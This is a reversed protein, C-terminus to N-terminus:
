TSMANFFAQDPLFTEWDLDMVYGDMGQGMDMGPPALNATPSSAVPMKDARAKLVGYCHELSDRATRAVHLEVSSDTEIAEVQGLIMNLFMHSKVNTEGQHIREEALVMMDRISQKLLQRYQSTRHLTGDLRQAQVHILLELGVAVMIVRLGERFLGGGSAMLRSFAADPEPSMIALAADVSLRISVYYVPNTRAQNSFFFHLPIMFRRVLYDLLNRHFPTSGQTDKMLCNNMHLAETLESSLALIDQYSTEADFKNLLNLIRLRVPISGLLALQISTTTFHDPPHSPAVTTSEDIEVDDVNSPLQTDFEDFSIRPPMRADLSAQVVLELITGWLRRRVETQLVSMPKGPLNQPDRHLGIQMARHILSGTSMWVTDGGISFIQRAVLTLCYIQLGALDVRDKELPGALWTEAAYIWHHVLEANRIADEPTPYDCLSSGIALVLLITLRLSTTVSDPYDWYRRYDAWFTPIHLIRHTSEFSAFYLNALTDSKERPPPALLDPSSLLGRTPRVLKISRATNKSKGLLDSAQIVLAAVEPDRFAANKSVKGMIEGWCAIIPVFEQAFETWGSNGLDRAKNLMIKWDQPRDEDQDEDQRTQTEVGVESPARTSKGGTQPQGPEELKQLLRQLLDQVDHGQDQDHKLSSSAPTPIGHGTTVRASLIELGHPASPQDRRPQDITSRLPSRTDTNGSPTPSTSTATSTRAWARARSPVVATAPVASVAPESGNHFTQYTCQAKHRICHACPNKQDCKIKRRRCERCSLAPRRRRRPQLQAQGQHHEPQEPGAGSQAQLPQPRPQQEGEMPLATPITHQPELCSETEATVCSVLLKASPLYQLVCDQSPVLNFLSPSVSIISLPLLSILQGPRTPEPIVM